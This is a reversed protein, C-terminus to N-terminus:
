EQFTKVSNNAIHEAKEPSKLLKDMRKPLDSFDTEVEVYNQQPGSSVLLYHHHQIYQLKHSVVVSRCAQRYELSASYVRGPYGRHEHSKYLSNSNHSSVLTGEVHGIFMYRCHDEMSLFNAKKSWDLEKM